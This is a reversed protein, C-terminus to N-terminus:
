QKAGKVEQLDEEPRATQNLQFVLSIVLQGTSHNLELSVDPTIQCSLIEFSSLYPFKYLGYM